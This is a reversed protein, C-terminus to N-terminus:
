LAGERWETESAFISISEDTYLDLNAAGVITEAGNPEITVTGTGINCISYELGKNGTITPLNVTMATGKNCIIYGKDTAALTTTDTFTLVQPNPISL